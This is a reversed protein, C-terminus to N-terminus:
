KILEAVINEVAEDGVNKFFYGADFSKLNLSDMKRIVDVIDSPEAVHSVEGNTISKFRDEMRHLYLDIENVKLYVPVAGYNLAEFSLTSSVTVCVRTNQLSEDLTFNFYDHWEINRIHANKKKMQDPIPYNPHSRIRILYEPMKGATKIATDIFLDLDAEIIFPRMVKQVAFLIILPSSSSKGTRIDNINPHGVVSIRIDPNYEEMGERFFEGWALFRDFPMNRWGTKPVSTGVSGWQLCYTECSTLRSVFGIVHLMSTDGEVILAKGPNYHNWTGLIKDIARCASASHFYAPNWFNPFERKEKLFRSDYGEKLAIKAKSFAYYKVVLGKQELRDMIKKTYAFFKPQNVPIVVDVSEQTRSKLVSILWCMVDKIVQFPFKLSYNKIHDLKRNIVGDILDENVDMSDTRFLEEIVPDEMIHWYLKDEVIQCLRIGKYSMNGFRNETLVKARNIIYEQLM